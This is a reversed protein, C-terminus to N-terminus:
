PIVKASVERWTGTVAGAIARVRATYGLKALATGNWSRTAASLSRSNVVSQGSYMLQVEYATVPYGVPGIVASWSVSPTYTTTGAVKTMTFSATAPAPCSPLPVSFAGRLTYAGFSSKRGDVKIIYTTGSTVPLSVSSQLNGTAIDDNAALLKLSSFVGVTGSYVGLVSNFDSGVTDVVLRGNAPATYTFWVSRTASLGALAPEGSQATAGLISGSQNFSVGNGLNTPFDAMDNAPAQSLSAGTATLVYAGTAGRNGDIAIFYTTGAVMSFQLLSTKIGVGADNNAAVKTLKSLESGKYVALATDFDFASGATSLTVIGTRDADLRFWLSSFPGGSGHSPEGVEKTAGATTGTATAPLAPGLIKAEAFADNSAGAVQVTFNANNIDFFINGVAEVKIRGQTTANDPVVFSYSGTNPTSAAIVLPFTQGGDLSLTIKVNACNVTTGAGTNGVSWTITRSSGIVFRDATNFSTIAFPGASALSSVTTDAYAVGGGGSANDRVTVRFKLTRTTQPLFEGSAYNPAVGTGAPPINNNNLIYTLRPFIRDSDSLPTFSRFLPSLGNDRPNTTPNKGVGGDDQEEWCFTMSDGNSDTASASLKFPTQSPIRYSTLPTLVPAINGNQVTQYPGSTQSIYSVMQELSKSNFYEDNDGQLNANQIGAYSMITSGSGPEVQAGTGEDRNSFVHNAGCGHGMEHAVVFDFPWFNNQSGLRTVIKAKLSNKGLIGIGGVSEGNLDLDTAYLHGFEYNSSGIMADINAQNETALTSNSGDGTYPDTIPDLYILSEELDVLIFRVALDREFIATVRGVSSVINALTISKNGPSTGSILSSYEATCAVALRYVKLEEGWRASLVSGRARLNSSSKQAVTGCKWKELGALSGADKIYYSLNGNPNNRLYPDILFSEKQSLITAHFGQDSMEIRGTATPDDIGQIIYTKISPYRQALSKPMLPSEMILFKGYGGDPLPLDIEVNGQEMTRTFEMPARKLVSEMASKKMSITRYKSPVVTRQSSVAQMTRAQPGSPVLTSEDVDQWLSSSAVNPQQTQGESLGFFFLFFGLWRVFIM